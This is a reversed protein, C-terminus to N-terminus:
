SWRGKRGGRTIKKRSSTADTRYDPATINWVLSIKPDALRSSIPSEIEDLSCRTTIVTALRANYRYNIVQYLKEQAWPTTSQEGFDDLILLPANKVTEFLQDYSARSEPSFTSRLHDLFDPVVIFLAPKGAQLRYNAIAAALHTKGCGTNGVFILWGEPSKAFDLALRFVEGLNDRQEPLLNVRRWDFNDFTMSKQLEFGPGWADEALPTPKEEVVYIQCLKPDTLRIRIREELQEIPIITVIVTPLQNNFRHNLLQDLKEKAWPTSSQAGLDDLVLLPANRVRDFFEDYPIESDPSFTSRLHDLLDPTTIFFVPYGQSLRENAIAAALHTKGCGSPGSIILWGKPESAFAKAAEFARGFQEQSTPNESRGQPLLNDFTLHSLSGLNSYRQLRAQREKDLGQQTCRCPIVRSFDPKGSPLLPHVFGAGKCIPCASSPSAEEPEASSWTDM